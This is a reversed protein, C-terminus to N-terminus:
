ITRGGASRRSWRTRSRTRPRRSTPEAASSGPHAPGRHAPGPNEKVLALAEEVDLDEAEADARTGPSTM